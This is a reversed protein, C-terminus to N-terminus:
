SCPAATAASSTPGSGPRARPSRTRGPEAGPLLRLLHRRARHLAPQGRGTRRDAPTRLGASLRLPGAAQPHGGVARRARGRGRRHRRGLDAVAPCVVDPAAATRHLNGATTSYGPIRAGDPADARRRRTPRTERREKRSFRSSAQHGGRVGPLVGHRPRRPQLASVAGARRLPDRRASRAAAGPAPRTAASSTGGRRGDSPHGAATDPSHPRRRGTGTRRLRGPGGRRLGGARRPRLERAPSDQQAPPHVVARRRDARGRVRRDAPGGGRPHGGRRHALQRSPRPGDDRHRVAAGAPDTTAAATFALAGLAGIM